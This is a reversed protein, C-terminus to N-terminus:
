KNDFKRNQVTNWILSWLTEKAQERICDQLANEFILLALEEQCKQVRRARNAAAAAEIPAVGEWLHPDDPIDPKAYRIRRFLFARREAITVSFDNWLAHYEDIRAANKKIRILYEAYNNPYLSKYRQIVGQQMLYLDEHALSKQMDPFAIDLFHNILIGFQIPPINKATENPLVQTLATFVDKEPVSKSFGLELWLKRSATHIVKPPPNLIQTIECFIRIKSAKSEYQPLKIKMSKKCIGKFLGYLYDRNEYMMNTFFSASGDKNPLQACQALLSCHDKTLTFSPIYKDEISPTELWNILGTQADEYKQIRNLCDDLALCHQVSISRKYHKRGESIWLLWRYKRLLEPFVTSQYFNKESNVLTSADCIIQKLNQKKQIIEEAQEQMVTWVEPYKDQIQFQMSCKKAALRLLAGKMSGQRDFFDHNQMYHSLSGNESLYGFDQDFLLGFECLLLKLEKESVNSKNIEQIYKTKSYFMEAYQKDSCRITKSVRFEEIFNLVQNKRSKPSRVDTSTLNASGSPILAHECLPM